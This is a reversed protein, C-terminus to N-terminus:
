NAGPASLPKVSGDRDVRLAHVGALTSLLLVAFGERSYLRFGLLTSARANKGDAVHDDFLIQEPEREFLEPVGLRMRLGGREGALWVVLLKGDLDVAQVDRADAPRLDSAGHDLVEPKHETTTCGASTCSAYYLRSGAASFGATVLTATTGHCGLTGWTPSFVPASFRDGIRFTIFDQGTGRVRVVTAQSTRCGTLHPQAEDGERILGAQPLEGVDVLDFSGSSSQDVALSFLRRQNDPTVGRVLVQDWLLQSGYFFNGVTFNPKLPLRTAPKEASKQVLILGSKQEDWGLVWAKGSATAYGGYSYLRDLPASSGAVFVGESGRKGAFILTPSTEDSTGLLRLGHGRVSSLEVLSRCTSRADDRQFVCLLPASMSEEDVLVPLALGANDETYSRGLATGRKSLPATGALSDVSRVRPPLKELSPPVAGPVLTDLLALAPELAETSDKTLASPESLFKTLAPLVGARGDPTDAKFVDAAKGAADRCSLPWLKAGLSSREADSHSMAQLQRRRFRQWPTEGAELPGGLLCSRLAAAAAEAELKSNRQAIVGAAGAGGVILSGVGALVWRRRASARKRMAEFDPSADQDGGTTMVM